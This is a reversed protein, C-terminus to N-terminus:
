AFSFLSFLKIELFALDPFNLFHKGFYLFIHYNELFYKKSFSKNKLFYSTSIFLFCM